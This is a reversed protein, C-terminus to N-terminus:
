KRAGPLNKFLQREDLSLQRLQIVGDCQSHKYFSGQYIFVIFADQFAEQLVKLMETAEPQKSSGHSRKITMQLLFVIGKPDVYIADIAPFNDSEPRIYFAKNENASTTIVKAKAKKVADVIAIKQESISGSVWLVNQIRARKLEPLKRSNPPINSLTLSENDKGLRFARHVLEEYFNGRIGHSGPWPSFFVFNKQEDFLQFVKMVVLELIHLTGFQLKFNIFGQQNADDPFLYFLQHRVSDNLNTSNINTAMSDLTIMNIKEKISEEWRDPFLQARPVGGYKVFLDEFTEKATISEKIKDAFLQNMEEKSWVPMYLCNKAHEKFMENWANKNPSSTLVTSGAFLGRIVGAEMGKSVDVLYVLKEDQGFKTPFLDARWKKLGLKKAVNDWTFVMVVNYPMMSTSHHIAVASVEGDKLKDVLKWLIYNRFATKGVGPTGTLVSNTKNTVNDWIISFLEQYCDRVFLKTPGDLTDFRGITHVNGFDLFNDRVKVDCLKEAFKKWEDALPFEDEIRQLVRHGVSGDVDGEAKRKNHPIYNPDRDHASNISSHFTITVPCGYCYGNLLDRRYKPIAPCTEVPKGNSTWSAIAEAFAGTANDVANQAKELETKLQERTLDCCKETGKAASAAGPDAM